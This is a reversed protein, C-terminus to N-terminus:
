TYLYGYYKEGDPVRFLSMRGLKAKEAFDFSSIPHWPVHTELELLALEPCDMCLKNLTQAAERKHVPKILGEQLFPLRIWRGNESLSLGYEGRMEALLIHDECAQMYQALAAAAEASPKAFSESYRLIRGLRQELEPNLETAAVEATHIKKYLYIELAFHDKAQAFFSSAKGAQGLANKQLEASEAEVRAYAEGVFANQAEPAVKALEVEFSGISTLTPANINPKEFGFFRKVSGIFSM